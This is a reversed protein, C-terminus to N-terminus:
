DGDVTELPAVEQRFRVGVVYPVDLEDTEVGWVMDSGVAMPRFTSRLELDGIAAGDADLITWFKRGSDNPHRGLWIAGEDTLMMGTVGPKHPPVHLTARAWEMAKARTVGLLGDEPVATAMISDVEAPEIPQPEYPVSVSFVTDGDFSLKSVEVVPEVGDAPIERDVVIIAREGPVFSWIPGEAFPQSRYMGGRRPDDPDFIAWQSEGFPVAPLTDMVNGEADLLYPRDHTLVGEAILHSFAPPAGHITGDDLLGRARPPQAEMFDETSGFPVGFSRIVQGDPGFLSFEYGNFDLVWLTDGVFGMSYANQFEGPGDGKGGITGLRTGASDFRRVIQEQPHLTYISGEDAVELDSVYTLAYEPDEVSGIRIEGISEWIPVADTQRAPEEDGCAVIPLVSLLLILPGPSSRRM